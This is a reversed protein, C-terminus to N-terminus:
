PTYKYFKKPESGQAMDAQGACGHREPDDCECVKDKFEAKQKRDFAKLKREEYIAKMRDLEDKLKEATMAQKAKLPWPVPHEKKKFQIFDFVQVTIQEQPYRKVM